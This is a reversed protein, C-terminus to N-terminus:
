RDIGIITLTYISVLVSLVQSSQVLPCLMPTFVWRGLIFTTYTFPISCIAMLIDSASLNILFLRLDRSSRRGRQLILISLLNGFLSLAATGSYLISLFIQVEKNALEFDEITINASNPDMLEDSWSENSGSNLMNILM